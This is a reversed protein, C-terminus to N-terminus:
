LLYNPLKRYGSSDPQKEKRGEQKEISREDHMDKMRGTNVAIRKESNQLKLDTDTESGKKQFPLILKRRPPNCTLVPKKNQLSKEEKQNQIKQNPLLDIHSIIHEIVPHSKGEKTQKEKATCANLTRHERM